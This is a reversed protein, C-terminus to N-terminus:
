LFSLYANKLAIATLIGLNVLLLIKLIFCFLGRGFSCLLDIIEEQEKEKQREKTEEDSCSDFWGTGFNM